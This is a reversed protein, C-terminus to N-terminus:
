RSKSSSMNERQRSPGRLQSVKDLAALNLAANVCVIKYHSTEEDISQERLHM